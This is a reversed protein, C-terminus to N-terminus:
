FIDNIRKKDEISKKNKNFIEVFYFINEDRFFVFTIRFGSHSGKNIGKCRFNKVIFAPLTVKSDLGAIRNCLTAKFENNDELHQILTFKLRELDQELSPCQHKKIIKNFEKQFLPHYNFTYKNLKSM